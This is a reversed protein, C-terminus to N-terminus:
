EFLLLQRGPPERGELICSAAYLADELGDAVGEMQGHPTHWRKTEPNWHLASFLEGPRRIDYYIPKVRVLEACLGLSRAVESVRKRDAQRSKKAM